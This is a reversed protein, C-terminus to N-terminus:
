IEPGDDTYTIGLRNLEDRVGNMDYVDVGFAGDGYWTYTEEATMTPDPLGDFYMDAMIANVQEHTASSSFRVEYSM